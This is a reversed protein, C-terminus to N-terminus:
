NSDELFRPMPADYINFGPLRRRLYERMAQVDSPLPPQLAWAVYIRGDRIEVVGVNSGTMLLPIFRPSEVTERPAPHSRWLEVLEGPSPIDV